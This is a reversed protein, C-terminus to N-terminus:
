RGSHRGWWCAPLGRGWRDCQLTRESLLCGLAGLVFVGAIHRKPEPELRDQRYFFVLWILAPVLAIVFGVAVLAWGALTPKLLAVLAVVLLVFVVQGLIHGLGARWVGPRDQTM